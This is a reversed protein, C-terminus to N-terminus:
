AAEEFEYEHFLESQTSGDVWRRLFPADARPETGDWGNPWTNAAILENIRAVEEANLTDVLPSGPPAQANCRAQIDLVEALGTRRADFTLPGMRNTYRITGDKSREFGPKRLRQSPERLWRYLPRLEKLPELYFWKPLRLLNDLATDVTALPCGNCGTRTDQEALSGDEALGYAEAVPQTPLNHGFYSPGILWDWVLCTRWHLIPALTACLDGPLAEQYWGQGCEAGNKGCSVAIRGDRAASEGLRVGTLMLVKGASLVDGVLATLEAVMPDVKIQRTCWRFTSNNPPPVGRGLLYPYFRKDMPAVAVRVEVGEAALIALLQAATAALVPNEMRTDAYCVTLRKPADVQGTRILHIVLTLVTTSDKGGSYAIAWHDHSAGHFRLSDRTLEISEGLDLRNAEFFTPQNRRTM